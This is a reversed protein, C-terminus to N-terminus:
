PLDPQAAFELWSMNLANLFTAPPQAGSITYKQNIIFFPVGSIGISQATKEDYRVEDTFTSSAMTRAVLAPDIGISIGIQILTELDDINKAM